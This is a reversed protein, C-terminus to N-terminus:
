AAGPLAFTSWDTKAATNAAGAAGSIYSSMLAFNGAKRMYAAGAQNESAQALLNEVAINKQRNGLFQQREMIAAGTPSTPDTNAAARVAEINGLTTNLQETLQAGTQAAAVRGREAASELQAARMDDASKEGQGKMVSSAVTLGIAALGAGGAAQGM